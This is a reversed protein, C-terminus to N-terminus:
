DLPMSPYLIYPMLHMPYAANWDTQSEAKPSSSGKIILNWESVGRYSSGGSRRIAPLFLHAPHWECIQNYTLLRVPISPFLSPYPTSLRAPYSYLSTYLASAFGKLVVQHMDSSIPLLASARQALSDVLQHRRVAHMTEALVNLCCRGQEAHDSPSM